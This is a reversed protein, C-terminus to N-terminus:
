KEKVKMEENMIFQVKRTCQIEAHFDYNNDSLIDSFILYIM